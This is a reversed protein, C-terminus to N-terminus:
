STILQLPEVTKRSRQLKCKTQDVDDRRIVFKVPLARQHTRQSVQGELSNPGSLLGSPFTLSKQAVPLLVPLVNLFPIIRCADPM